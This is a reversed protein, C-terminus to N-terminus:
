NQGGAVLLLISSCYGLVASTYGGGLGHTHLIHAAWCFFEKIEWRSLKYPEFHTCRGKYAGTNRLIRIQNLKFTGPCSFPGSESRSGVRCKVMKWKLVVQFLPLGFRTASDWDLFYSALLIHWYMTKTCYLLHWIRTGGWKPQIAQNLQLRLYQLVYIYLISLTSITCFIVSQPTPHHYKTSQQM